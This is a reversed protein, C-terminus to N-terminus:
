VVSLSAVKAPTAAVAGLALTVATAYAAIRTTTSTM